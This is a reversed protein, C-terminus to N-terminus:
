NNNSAGYCFISIFKRCSKSNKQTWKMEEDDDDDDDDDNGKGITLM